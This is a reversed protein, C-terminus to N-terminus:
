GDVNRIVISEVFSSYGSEIYRKLGYSRLGNSFVAEDLDLREREEKGKGSNWYKLFDRRTNRKGAELKKMLEKNHIADDGYLGKIADRFGCDNSLMFHYIMRGADDSSEDIANHIFGNVSQWYDEAMMAELEPQITYETQQGQEKDAILDALTFSEDDGNDIQADISIANNLPDRQRRETRGGCCARKFANQLHYGLYHLFSSKQNKYLRVADLFGFYAEQICDEKVSRDLQPFGESYKGAMMAVYDRCQEWLEPILEDHGQQILLCLEENTM